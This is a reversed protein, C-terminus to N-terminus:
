AFHVGERFAFVARYRAYSRLIMCAYSRVIIQDDQPYSPSLTTIRRERDARSAALYSLRDRRTIWLRPRAIPYLISPRAIATRQRGRDLHVRAHLIAPVRLPPISPVVSEKANT